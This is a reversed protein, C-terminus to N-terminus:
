IKWLPQFWWGSWTESIYTKIEERRFTAAESKRSFASQKQTTSTQHLGPRHWSLTLCWMGLAHHPKFWRMVWLYRSLIGDYLGEHMWEILSPLFVCKWCALQSLKQSGNEACKGPPKHPQDSESDSPSCRASKHFLRAAHLSTTQPSQGGTILCAPNAIPFGREM